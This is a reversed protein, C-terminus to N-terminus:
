SSLTQVKTELAAIRAEKDRIQAQTITYAMDFAAHLYQLTNELRNLNAANIPTGQQIVKGFADAFTKTGDHNDTEKYTHPKEVVHDVWVTRAQAM